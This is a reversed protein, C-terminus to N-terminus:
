WKFPEAANIMAEAVNLRLYTQASANGNAGSSIIRLSPWALVLQGLIAILQEVATANGDM